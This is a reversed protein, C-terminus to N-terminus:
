HHFHTSHVAVCSSQKKIIQVLTRHYYGCFKVLKCEYSFHPEPFCLAYQKISPFCWHISYLPFNNERAFYEVSNLPKKKRKEKLMKCKEQERIM